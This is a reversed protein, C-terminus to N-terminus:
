DNLFNKFNYNVLEFFQNKYYIHNLSKKLENGEVNIWGNAVKDIFNKLKEM